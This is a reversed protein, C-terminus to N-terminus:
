KGSHVQSIYEPVPYIPTVTLITSSSTSRASQRLTNIISVATYILPGSVARFVFNPPAKLVQFVCLSTTLILTFAWHIPGMPCLLCLSGRFSKQVGIHLLGPHFNSSYDLSVNDLLHSQPSILDLRLRLPVSASGLKLGFSLSVSDLNLTFIKLDVLQRYKPVAGFILVHKRFYIFVLAWSLALYLHWYIQYSDLDTGFIDRAQVRIRCGQFM